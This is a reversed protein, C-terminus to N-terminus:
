PVERDNMTALKYSGNDYAEVVRYPGEWNLGLKGQNEVRSAVNKRYVFDGVRISMPRVRKNYYKEVKKKYKAERIAITERREWGLRERGLSAKLEHMLSKNSREVIGNAQPHEVSTSMQKIKWKECWSKFPDNVLQTGNDTM